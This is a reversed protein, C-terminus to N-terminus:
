KKYDEVLTQMLNSYGYCDVLYKVGDLIEEKSFDHEKLFSETKENMHQYLMLGMQLYEQDSVDLNELLLDEATGIEGGDVLGVYRQYQVALEVSLDEERGSDFDRGLILKTLMRIVESIIRMMYDKDEFM